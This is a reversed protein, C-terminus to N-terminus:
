AGASRPFRLLYAIEGAARGTTDAELVGGAGAALARSVVMGPPLDGAAEDLGAPDDGAPEEVEGEAGDVSAAPAAGASGGGVRLRVEEPRVEGRIELCAGERGRLGDLVHLCLTLIVHRLADSGLGVLGASGAAAHDLRVRALRAEVEVLPLVDMLATDLQTASAPQRSPRLLQLLGNVVDHVRTVQQELVEARELARPADGDAVRRKLLELNIVMAHLPNKLEHGIDDALRSVLGFRDARVRDPTLSLDSVTTPKWSPSRTEQRRSAPPLARKTGRM